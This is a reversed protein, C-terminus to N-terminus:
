DDDEEDDLATFDEVVNTRDTQQNMSRMEGIEVLLMADCVVRDARLMKPCGAIPCVARGKESAIYSMITKKDYVHKCEMSRVPEALEIVPKGSIPCVKNLLNSQTSTMVIDEQEEGPMPQGEHHVNWVAVRFQRLLPHNNSASSSSKLKQFEAGLLKEFDTLEEQPEYTNGVSAIVSTHHGCNDYAELLEAVANDLENVKGSENDKELDVAIEKMMNLAKRIEALLSQNESSLTSALNRIRGAAGSGRSASTSAM